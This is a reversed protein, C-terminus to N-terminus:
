EIAVGASICLGNADRSLKSRVDVQDVFRGDAHDAVLTIGLAIQAHLALDLHDMFLQALLDAM